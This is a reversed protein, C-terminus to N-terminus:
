GNNKKGNYILVSEYNAPDREEFSILLLEPAAWKSVYFRGEVVWGIFIIRQQRSMDFSAGEWYAYAEADDPAVKEIHSRFKLYITKIRNYGLGTPDDYEILSKLNEWHQKNLVDCNVDYENQGSLSPYKPYYIVKPIIVVADEKEQM